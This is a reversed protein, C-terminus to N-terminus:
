DKLLVIAVFATFSPFITRAERTEVQFMYRVMGAFPGRLILELDCSCGFNSLLMTGPQYLNRDDQVSSDEDPVHPNHVPPVQVVEPWCDWLPEVDVQLGRRRLKQLRASTRRWAVQVVEEDMYSMAQSVSMAYGTRPDWAYVPNLRILTRGTDSGGCRFLSLAEMAIEERSYRDYSKLRPDDHTNAWSMMVLDQGEGEGDAEDGLPLVPECLHVIHGPQLERSVHIMYWRLDEPFRMGNLREFAAVTSEAYPPLSLLLGPGNQEALEKLVWCPIDSTAVAAQPECPPVAVKEDERPGDKALSGMFAALGALTRWSRFPYTGLKHYFSQIADGTAAYVVETSAIMCREVDEIRPLNLFVQLPEPLTKSRLSLFTLSYKDEKEVPVPEWEHTVLPLFRQM